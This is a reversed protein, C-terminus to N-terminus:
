RYIKGSSIESKISSTNLGLEAAYTVFLDTPDPVESWETQTEFLKDHMEWYKGQEGAIRVMQASVVANRHITTLPFNRYVFTVNDKYQEM